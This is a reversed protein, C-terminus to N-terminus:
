NRLTEKVANPQQRLEPEGSSKRDSPSLLDVHKSRRSALTLAGDYAKRVVIRGSTDEDSMKTYKINHRTYPYCDKTLRERDNTLVEM